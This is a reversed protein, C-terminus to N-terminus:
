RGPSWRAVVDRGRLAWKAGRANRGASFRCSKCRRASALVPPLRTRNGNASGHKRYSVPLKSARAPVRLAGALNV